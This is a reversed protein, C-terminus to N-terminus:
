DTDLWCCDTWAPSWLGVCRPRLWCSLMDDATVLCVPKSGSPPRDILELGTVDSEPQWYTVRATVIQDPAVLPFDIQVIEQPVDSIDSPLVLARAIVHVCTLIQREGVLFGLGITKGDAARIRAISSDPQGIFHSLGDTTERGHLFALEPGDSLEGFGVMAEVEQRWSQIAM